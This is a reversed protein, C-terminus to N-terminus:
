LYDELFSMVEDLLQEPKYVIADKSTFVQDLGIKSMDLMDSLMWERPVSFNFVDEDIKLSFRAVDGIYTEDDGRRFSYPTLSMSLQFTDFNCIYTIRNDTVTKADCHVIFSALLADYRRKIVSANVDCWLNRESMSM